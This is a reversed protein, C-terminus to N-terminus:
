CIWIKMPNLRMLVKQIDADNSLEAIIVEVKIKFQRTLEELWNKFQKKSKQRDSVLDFGQSALKKAYAAGIGSTAGTIVATKNM